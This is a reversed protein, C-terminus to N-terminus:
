DTFGIHAILGFQPTKGIGIFDWFTSTSGSTWIYSLSGTPGIGSLVLVSSKNNTCHAGKTKCKLECLYYGSTLIQINTYITSGANFSAYSQTEHTISMQSYDAKVRRSIISSKEIQIPCDNDLDKVYTKGYYTSYVIKSVNPDKEYNALQGNLEQLEKEYRNYNVPNVKQLELWDQDNLYSFANPRKNENIFYEGTLSNFDVFKSLIQSDTQYDRTVPNEVNMVEDDSCATVGVGASLLVTLTLFIHKM